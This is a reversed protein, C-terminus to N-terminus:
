QKLRLLRLILSADDDNLLYIFDDFFNTRYTEPPNVILRNGLPPFILLGKDRKRWFRHSTRAIKVSKAIM